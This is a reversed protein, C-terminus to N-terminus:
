KLGYLFYLFLLCKDLGPKIEPDRAGPARAFRAPNQTAPKIGSKRPLSFGHNQISYFILRPRTKLSKPENRSSDHISYFADKRATNEIVQPM